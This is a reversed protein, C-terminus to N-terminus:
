ERTSAILKARSLNLTGLRNVDCMDVINVDAKLEQTNM